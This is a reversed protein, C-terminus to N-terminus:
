GGLEIDEACASRRQAGADDWCERFRMNRKGISVSRKTGNPTVAQVDYRTGECVKFGVVVSHFPCVIEHFIFYLWFLTGMDVGVLLLLSYM